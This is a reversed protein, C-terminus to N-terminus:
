GNFHKYFHRVVSEIEKGYHPPLIYGRILGDGDVLYVGAYHNVLYNGKEIDGEYDYNIGFVEALIDIQDKDGSVGNFRKDFYAVFDGMVKVTDRAPDVTIFTVQVQDQISPEEGLRKYADALETLTTPCVDPCHTYGFFLLSWRGDSLRSSDFREERQDLLSFNPLSIPPDVTFVGDFASVDPAGPDRQWVWVILSLLLVSALFLLTRKSIQM